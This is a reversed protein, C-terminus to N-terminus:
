AYKGKLILVLSIRNLFQSFLTDPIRRKELLLLFYRQRWCVYLLTLSLFHFAFEILVLCLSYWFHLVRDVVFHHVPNTILDKGGRPCLQTPRRKNGLYGGSLGHTTCQSPNGLSFYKNGFWNNDSTQNITVFHRVGFSVSFLILSRIAM